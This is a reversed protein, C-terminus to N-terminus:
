RGPLFPQADPYNTAAKDGAEVDSGEFGNTVCINASNDATCGLGCSVGGCEGLFQPNSIGLHKIRYGLHNSTGIDISDPNTRWVEGV